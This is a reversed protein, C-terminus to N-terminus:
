IIQMHSHGGADLHGLVVENDKILLVVPDEVIIPLLRLLWQEWRCWHHSSLALRTGLTWAVINGGRLPIVRHVDCIKGTLTTTVKPCNSTGIQWGKAPGDIEDLGEILVDAL